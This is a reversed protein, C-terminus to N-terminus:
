AGFATPTSHLFFSAANWARVHLYVEEDKVSKWPL